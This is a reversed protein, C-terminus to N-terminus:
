WDYATEDDDEIETRPLEWESATIVDADIKKIDLSPTEYQVNMYVEECM